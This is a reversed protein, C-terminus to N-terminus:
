CCFRYIHDPVILFVKLSTNWVKSGISSELVCHTCLYDFVM